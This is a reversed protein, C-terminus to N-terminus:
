AATLFMPFIVDLFRKYSDWTHQCGFGHGRQEVTVKLAAEFLRFDEVTDIPLSFGFLKWDNDVTWMHAASAGLRIAVIDPVRDVGSKAVDCFHRCMVKLGTLALTFAQHFEDRLHRVFLDRTPAFPKSAAVDVGMVMSTGDPGTAGAVNSVQNDNSM